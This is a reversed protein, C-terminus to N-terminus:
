EAWPMRLNLMLANLHRSPRKALANCVRDTQGHRRLIKSSCVVLWAKIQNVIRSPTHNAIGAKLLSDCQLRDLESPM